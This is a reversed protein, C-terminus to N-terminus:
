RGMHSVYKVIVTERVRQLVCRVSRPIPNISIRRYPKAQGVWDDVLVQKLSFGPFFSFSFFFLSRIADTSVFGQRFINIEDASKRFIKM